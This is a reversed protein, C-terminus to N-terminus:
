KEGTIGIKLKYRFGSPFQDEEKLVERSKKSIWFRQIATAGSPSKSSYEMIWCDIKEGNSGTLFESGTVIYEAIKSKGFGPDYFNVKFTRGKKFPFLPFIILDSHWSLNFNEFSENFDKIIQAKTADEIKGEFTVQKTNFDFKATYGLRKWWTDHRITSFDAADHVTYATHTLDDGADWKQSVAFAKKSDVVTSEINIKVLTLMQAPATATKKFYVIYASNGLKLHKLELDKKGIFVTDAKQGFSNFALALLLIFVFIKKM